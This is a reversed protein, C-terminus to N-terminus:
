ALIDRAVKGSVNTLRFDRGSYRFTLAEHDLGLLHLITAHFDQIDMKGSVAENGLEDTAGHQYGGRTGGGALWMTYGRGHHGRGNGDGKDDYPSRGFEGGWVLLTDDLLGRQQLDTLLGAIPRDIATARGALSQRLNNHHDWGPHTIQIFRVGKEALRRALLCQRGFQATVGQDLGYLDRVPEPESELALVDPISTQMQFALEYSQILGEIEPNAPDGAQLRRNMRQVLDIQSRQDAAGLGPVLDPLGAGAGSLRTGQFTAPLFASGYNLAGGQDHPPDITVFGPMDEALSGLGYTIWAGFSPRVFTESGTHLAITAQVHSNTRTQMGNLLCLKDAHRALEPFVEAIMLGSRGAARFETVAGLLKHPGGKGVRALEPKWDFTDLHSPGGQMFLFIVRRARPKFHPERPALPSAAKGAALASLALWGFGASTRQLFRRRNWPTPDTNM